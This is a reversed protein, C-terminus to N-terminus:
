LDLFSKKFGMRKGEKALKDFTTPSVFQIVPLHDKTPQMYQGITILDCGAALWEAMVELVEYEKEGLGLM